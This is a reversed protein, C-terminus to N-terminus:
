ELRSLQVAQRQPFNDIQRRVNLLCGFMFCVAVLSSGGYSLFPLTLGKTPLMGLTVGTNVFVSLSFMVTIGLAIAQAKPEHAQSATQLGRFILFGYLLMLTFFGIFGFEEGLVSLTFDTHAEPLFFLKSQGHGPGVGWVGGSHFGLLSQIVQFGRDTPDAWPDLYTKVRAMRYPVNLVLVYFAPISIIAGLVIYVWRLGFVFFMSLGVCISLVFTGFDPQKLLLILPIALLLHKGLLNFIKQQGLKPVFLLAIAFPLTAKFLEAPEFRQGLPLRLWRSAGGAKISLAPLYTLAIGVVAVAFLACGLKFLTNWPLTATAFLITVGLLVFLSQRIFFFLGNSYNETAYIYSSSYVQVLGLGLLFLVILLM